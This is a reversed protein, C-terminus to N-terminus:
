KKRKGKKAKAAPAASQVSLVDIDFVLTSGAPIEDSPPVDGYGLDAPVYLTYSGGQRMLQLGETWGAVFRGDELTFSFDAQQDFVEGDPLSGKYSVRVEDGLKVAAGKGQRKIRYQLGSATSKINKDSQNAAMFDSGAERNDAAESSRAAQIRENLKDFLANAEDDSLKSPQGSLAARLGDFAAQPDAHFGQEQFGALQKGMEYGFYYSLRRDDQVEDAHAAAGACVLAACVATTRFKM